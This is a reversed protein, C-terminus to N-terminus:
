TGSIELAMLQSPVRPGAHIWTGGPCQPGWPGALESSESGAALSESKVRQACRWPRHKHEPYASAGVDLAM